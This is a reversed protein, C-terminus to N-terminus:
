QALSQPATAKMAPVITLVQYYHLTPDALCIGTITHQLCLQQRRREAAVMAQSSPWTLAGRRTLLTATAHLSRLLPRQLVDGCPTFAAIISGGHSRWSAM